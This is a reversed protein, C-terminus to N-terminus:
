LQSYTVDKTLLMQLELGHAQAFDTRLSSDDPQCHAPASREEHRLGIIQVWPPPELPEATLHSFMDALCCSMICSYIGHM